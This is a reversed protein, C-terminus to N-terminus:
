TNQDGIQACTASLVSKGVLFWTLTEQQGTSTKRTGAMSSDVQFGYIFGRGRFLCAGMVLGTTSIVPGVRRRAVICRAISRRNGM